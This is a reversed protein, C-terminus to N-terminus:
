KKGYESEWITIINYGNNRIINERDQTENYLEGFSKKNVANYENPLYVNPNGHWFDGYFEYVTNTEECYGDFRIQKGNCVIKKEGQNGAHQIFVNDRKMIEELWKISIKSYSVNCCKQCGCGNLHDNPKQLFEGHVKCIIIISNRSLNYEVKSYDYLNNHRLSAKEIFDATTRIKNCCKYCGNGGRHDNPTQVFSGHEKCLIEVPTAYDIFVTNEYCYKDGHKKRANLVFQEKTHKVRNSCVPCDQKYHNNPLQEFIGHEKCVIKVKTKNCKYDVLSYDYKNGHILKANNIFYDTTNAQIKSSKELACKPCGQRNNVHNSIRKDFEGHTKCIIKFYYYKNTDHKYIEKYTYKNQHTENSISVWEDFTKM